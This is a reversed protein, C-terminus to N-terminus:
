GPEKQHSQEIAFALDTLASLVSPDVETFDGSEVAPTNLFSRVISSANSFVTYDFLLELEDNSLPTTSPPSNM